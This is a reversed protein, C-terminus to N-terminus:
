IAAVEVIRAPYCSAPTFREVARRFAGRDFALWNLVRVELENPGPTNQNIQVYENSSFRLGPEPAGAPTGESSISGEREILETSGPFQLGSGDAPFFLGTTPGDGPAFEFLQLGEGSAPFLLGEGGAPFQLVTGGELNAPDALVISLLTRELSEVGGDEQARAEVYPKLAEGLADAENQVGWAFAFNGLLGEQGCTSLAQDYYVDEWVWALTDIVGGIASLVGYLTSSPTRTQWWAPLSAQLDVLAREFDPPAAVVM